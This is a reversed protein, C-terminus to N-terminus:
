KILSFTLKFCVKCEGGQIETPAGPAGRVGDENGQDGGGETSDSQGDGGEDAPYSEGGGSGPKETKGSSGESGRQHQFSLCATKSTLVNVFVKLKVHVSSFQRALFVSVVASM